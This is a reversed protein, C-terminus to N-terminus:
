ALAVPPKLATLRSRALSWRVAELLEQPEPRTLFYDVAGREVSGEGRPDGQELLVIVQIEPHRKRLLGLFLLDDETQRIEAIVLATPKVRFLSLAQDADAVASCEYASQRLFRACSERLIRDDSLVVIHPGTETKVGEM